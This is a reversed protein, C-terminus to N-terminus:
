VSRGVLGFYGAAALMHRDNTWVEREGIEKATTLHVADATRLYVEPPSSIVLAGARRLMSDRVPILNWLGEDAHELFLQSLELVAESAAAGERMKRHFVCQVEAMAWGSSYVVRADRVLKRVAISEPENVYYKAIYASDLYV